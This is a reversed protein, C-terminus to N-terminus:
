RCRIILGGVMSKNNWGPGNFHMNNLGKDTKAQEDTSQEAHKKSKVEPDVVQTHCKGIHSNHFFPPEPKDKAQAMSPMAVSAVMFVSAVIVTKRM